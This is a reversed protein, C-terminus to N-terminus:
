VAGSVLKNDIDTEVGCEPCTVPIEDRITSNISKM